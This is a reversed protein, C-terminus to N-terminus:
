QIELSYSVLYIKGQTTLLHLNKNGLWYEGNKQVFNGFGNEYDNWDRCFKFHFSIKAFDLYVMATGLTGVGGQQQEWM